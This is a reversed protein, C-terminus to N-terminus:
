ARRSIWELVAVRRECKGFSVALRPPMRFKLTTFKWYLRAPARTNPFHRINNGGSSRATKTEPVQNDASAFPPERQNGPFNRSPPNMTENNKSKVPNSCYERRTPTKPSNHAFRSLKNSDRIVHCGWSAFHWRSPQFDNLCTRRETGKLDSRTVNLDSCFGVQVFLVFFCGVRAVM